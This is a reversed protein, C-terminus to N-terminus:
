FYIIFISFPFSLDLTVLLCILMVFTQSISQSVILHEWGKEKVKLCPRSINGMSAM